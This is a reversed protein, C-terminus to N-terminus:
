KDCFNSWIGLEYDKAYQESANYLTQHKIDPKYEVSFAYGNRVLANNINLDGVWVHRLLRDYRDENTIDSELRVIKNLVLSSIYASAEDGYCEPELTPHKTEPTDIGILRVSRAKGDVVVYITDGDVIKTVLGEVLPQTDLETNNKETTSKDSNPSLEENIINTASELVTGIDNSDDSVLLMVALFLLSLIGLITNQKPLKFNM